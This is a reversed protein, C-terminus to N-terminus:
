WSVEDNEDTIISNLVQVLCATLNEDFNSDYLENVVNGKKEQTYQLIFSLLDWPMDDGTLSFYETLMGIVVSGLPVTHKVGESVSITVMKTFGEDKVRTFAWENLMSFQKATALKSDKKQVVHAVKQRLDVFFDRLEDEIGYEDAMEHHDAIGWEISASSLPTDQPKNEVQPPGGLVMGVSQMEAQTMPRYQTYGKSNKKVTGDKETDPIVAISVGTLAHWKASSIAQQRQPPSGNWEVTTPYPFPLITSDEPYVTYTRFNLGEKYLWVCPTVAKTRADNYSGAVWGDIRHLEITAPDVYATNKGGVVPGMPAPPPAQQGMPPVQQQQFMGTPLPALSNQPLSYTPGTGDSATYGSGELATVTDELQELFDSLEMGRATFMFNLGKKYMKWNASFAAEPMQESM